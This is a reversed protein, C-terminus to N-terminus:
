YCLFYHKRSWFLKVYQRSGCKLLCKKAMVETTYNNVRKAGLGHAWARCGTQLTLPRGVLDKRMQSQLSYNPFGPFSVYHYHPHWIPLTRSYNKQIPELVLTVSIFTMSVCLVGNTGLKKVINVKILFRFQHTVPMIHLWHLSRLSHLFIININRKERVM